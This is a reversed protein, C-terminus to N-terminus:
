PTPKSTKVLQDDIFREARVLLCRHSLLSASYGPSKEPIAPDLVSFLRGLQGITLDGWHMELVPAFEASCAHVILDREAQSLLDKVTIVIKSM